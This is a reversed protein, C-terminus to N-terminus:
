PREVLKQLADPHTVPAECYDDRCVFVRPSTGVTTRGQFLPLNLDTDRPRDPFFALVQGHRYFRFCAARLADTARQDTGPVLVVITRPANLARAVRLLDTHGRPVRQAAEGHANVLTQAFALWDPRGCHYSLRAFVEAAVSTSNPLAGDHAEGIRIPLIEHEAPTHYVRQTTSDYFDAQIKTAFREAEHLLESDGTSEYLALLGDTTYTYDDLQAPQGVKGQRACRQLGGHGDTMAHTVFHLARRATEIYRDNGLLRGAEAFASAMLATQGAIIKDDTLPRQRTTRIATLRERASALRLMATEEDLGLDAAVQALPNPTWLVNTGEWNGEPRVDYYRTFVDVEDAALSETVEHWDFVYYRGEEGDSDADQGTYFGGDPDTLERLVWDFLSELTTRHSALGTVRFADLYAKALQANDYLMKEFHPVQWREDTSYRAFGGGLHDHIGGRAIHELASLAMDRADSIGDREHADFLLRIAAHPPFKPASDFGGWQADFSARLQLIATHVTATPIVQPVRPALFAKLQRTINEGEAVVRASDQAWLDAISRLVRLFGPQGGRDHPPFYTGAFFAQAAPTLFVTMPWGGHGCLALTATMYIEDIDPREERDVKICVFHENMYEAINPDRFSEREMVHCWHCTAYGVSLLIPKHEATARRRAEEGWPYWDVPNDAHGLLYPSNTTALRNRATGIPLNM